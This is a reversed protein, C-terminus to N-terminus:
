HQLMIYRWHHPQSQRYRWGSPTEMADSAKVQIPRALMSQNNSNFLWGIKHLGWGILLLAGAATLLYKWRRMTAEKGSETGGERLVNFLPNPHEQFSSFDYGRRGALCCLPYWGSEAGRNAAHQVFYRAEICCSCFSLEDSGSAYAFVRLALGLRFRLRLTKARV